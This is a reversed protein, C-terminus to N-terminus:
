NHVKLAKRGFAALVAHSQEEGMLVKAGNIGREQMSDVRVRGHNDGKGTARIFGLLHTTNKAATVLRMHDPKQRVMMGDGANPVLDELEFGKGWIIRQPGRQRLVM